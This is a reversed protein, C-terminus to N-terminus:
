WVKQISALMRHCTVMNKMIDKFKLKVVARVEREGILQMSLFPIITLFQIRFKPTEPLFQGSLFYFFAGSVDDSLSCTCSERYGCQMRHM